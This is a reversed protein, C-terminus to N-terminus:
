MFVVLVSWTHLIYCSSSFLWSLSSSSSSIIINNLCEKIDNNIIIIVINLRSEYLIDGYTLKETKRELITHAFTISKCSMFTINEDTKRLKKERSRKIEPM